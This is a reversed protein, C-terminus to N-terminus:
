EFGSTAQHLLPVRHKSTGQISEPDQIHPLHDRRGVAGFHEGVEAGVHDLHLPGSAALSSSVDPRERVISRMELLAPQEVVQVRVFPANREVDGSLAATLQQKPEDLPRTPQDLVV